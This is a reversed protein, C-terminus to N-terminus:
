NKNQAICISLATNNGPLRAAPDVLGLARAMGELILEAQASLAAVDRRQGSWQARTLVAKMDCGELCIADMLERATIARRDACGGRRKPSLVDGAEALVREVARIVGAHAIRTTVGGDNTAPGGDAKAGESSAGAISGVKESAYAYREAAMRRPDVAVMRSLVVPLRRRATSFGPRTLPVQVTLPSGDAARHQVDDSVQVLDFPSRAAGAPAREGMGIGILVRRAALTNIIHINMKEARARAAAQTMDHGKFYLILATLASVM